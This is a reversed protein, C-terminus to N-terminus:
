PDPSIMWSPGDDDDSDDDQDGISRRNRVDVDDCAFLRESLLPPRNLGLLIMHAKELQELEDSLEQRERDVALFSDFARTIQMENIKSLHDRLYQPISQIERRASKGVGDVFARVAVKWYACFAFFYETTRAKLEPNTEKWDYKGNLIESVKAEWSTEESTQEMAAFLKARITNYYHNNSTWIGDV